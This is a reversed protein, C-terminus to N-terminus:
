EERKPIKGIEKEDIEKYTQPFMKKVEDLSLVPIDKFLKEVAMSYERNEKLEQEIEKESNEKLFYNSMKERKVPYYSNLYEVASVPTYLPISYAGEISNFAIFCYKGKITDIITCGDNNDGNAYSERYLKAQQGKDETADWENNLCTFREFGTRGGLTHGIVNNQISMISTIVNIFDQVNKGNQRLFDKAFFGYDKDCGQLFKMFQYVNGVATMGYLWQNHYALVTKKKTGLEYSHKKYAKKEKVYGALDTKWKDSNNLELKEKRSENPNTVRIFIQHRQGM